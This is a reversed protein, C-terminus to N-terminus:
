ILARRTTATQPILSVWGPSFTRKSLLTARHLIFSTLSRGTPTLGKTSQQLLQSRVASGTRLVPGVRWRSPDHWALLLHIESLYSSTLIGPGSTSIAITPYAVGPTTTAVKIAENLAKLAQNYQQLENLGTGYVSAYRVRAAPDHLYKAVGWATLVQKKASKLDGLMFSAIGQEGTARAALLYHRRQEALKQVQTWTHRALAADYNTELMGLVTLVRLRTEPDQAVPLSLDATLAAIQQRTSAWESVAPVQSVRAYLAKDPRRQQQLLTEAQVYLPRAQIWANLWALNDAGALIADASQGERDSHERRLLLLVVLALLLFAGGVM